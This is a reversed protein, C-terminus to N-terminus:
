LCCVANNSIGLAAMSWVAGAAQVVLVWSCQRAPRSAGTRGSTSPVPEAHMNGPAPRAHLGPAGANTAASGPGPGAVAATETGRPRAQGAAARVGDGAIVGVTAVRGQGTDGQDIVSGDDTHAPSAPEEDEAIAAPLVASRCSL